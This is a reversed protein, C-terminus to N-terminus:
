QLRENFKSDAHQLFYYNLFNSNLCLLFNLTVASFELKTFALEFDLDFGVVFTPLQSSDASNIEM